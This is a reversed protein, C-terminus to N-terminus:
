IHILSLHLRELLRARQDLTLHTWTNAGARLDAIATDLAEHLPAALADARKRPKGAKRASADTAEATPPM